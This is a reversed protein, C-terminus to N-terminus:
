GSRPQQHSGPRGEFSVARLGQRAVFRMAGFFLFSIKRLRANPSRRAAAEAFTRVANMTFGRLNSESGEGFLQLFLSIRQLINPFYPLSVAHTTGIKNTVVAKLKVPATDPLGSFGCYVSHARDRCTRTSTKM